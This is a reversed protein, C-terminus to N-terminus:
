QHSDHTIWLMMVIGTASRRIIWHYQHFAVRNGDLNRWALNIYNKLM